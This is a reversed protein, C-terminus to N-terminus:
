NKLKTEKTVWILLPLIHQKTKMNVTILKLFFNIAYIKYTGEEAYVMPM